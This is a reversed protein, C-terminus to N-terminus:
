MYLFVLNRNLLLGYSDTDTEVASFINNNAPTSAAEDVVCNVEDDTNADHTAITIITVSTTTDEHIDVNVSGM